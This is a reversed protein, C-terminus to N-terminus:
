FGQQKQTDSEQRRGQRKVENDMDTGWRFLPALRTGATPQAEARAFLVAGLERKKLRQQRPPTPWRAPTRLQVSARGRVPAYHTPPSYSAFYVPTLISVVVNSMM